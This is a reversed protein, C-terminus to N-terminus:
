PTSKERIAIAREAIAKTKYTGLYAFTEPIAPTVKQYLVWRKAERQLRYNTEQKNM